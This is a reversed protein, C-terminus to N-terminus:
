PKKPDRGLLRAFEAEIADVSFPDIPAPEPAVEPKELVPEAADQRAPEPEAGAADEGAAKDESAVPEVEFPESPVATEAREAAEPEPEVVAASAPEPMPPEPAVFAPAVVPEPIAPPKPSVREPKLGLAMELEAEVDAPTAVPRAMPVPAPPTVAVPAAVAASEMSVPAPRVMEEPVVPANAPRVASFPRKLAEELQRTMDDLEGVSATPAPAHDRAFSPAQVTPASSQSAAHAVAGLAVGAVVPAVSAATLEPQSQVPRAPPAVRPAPAVEPEPVAVAVPPAPMPQPPASMPPAVRRPEEVPEPRVSDLGQMPDIPVPREPPNGEAPPAMNARSGSRLINTEVVVDSAGGIMILHEVNDRRILVLQRQRDLDHTDVVGLRPQRARGGGQGRMRLRGGKIQRVVLGLLILLALIVVSAILVKQATPLDFGFLTQLTQRM